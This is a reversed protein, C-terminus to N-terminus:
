AALGREALLQESLAWLREAAADDEAWPKAQEPKCRRYYGGSRGALAPATALYISTSAGQEPSLFFPKMLLMTFRAFGGNNTGMGTAVAGPHLANTTIATGQLRRALARNFLINALKSHGYAAFTRYRRREWNYDDFDFGRVFHHANSAVHVIRAAPAGQLAPLLRTTLLFHALHNVAFMEELGDASLRRAANVVGANNILLDLQPALERVRAAAQAVAQLSSLDCQVVASDAGLAQLERALEAGKGPSRCLLLLRAGREGLALATARGIGSTPGTIACTTGALSKDNM